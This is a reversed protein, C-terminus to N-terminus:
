PLDQVSFPEMLERGAPFSGEFHCFYTTRSTDAEGCSVTGRGLGQFMSCRRLNKGYFCFQPNPRKGQLWPACKYAGAQLPRDEIFGTQQGVSTYIWNYPLPEVWLVTKIDIKNRFNAVMIVIEGGM